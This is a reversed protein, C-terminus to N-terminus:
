RQDFYIFYPMFERSIMKPRIREMKIRAPIQFPKKRSTSPNIPIMPPRNRARIPNAGM